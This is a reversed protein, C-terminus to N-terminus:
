PFGLTKHCRRGNIENTDIRIITVFAQHWHDCSVIEYENENEILLTNVNHPQVM